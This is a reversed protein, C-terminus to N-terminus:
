LGVMSFSVTGTIIWYDYRHSAGGRRLLAWVLLALAVLSHVGFVISAGTVEVSSASVIEDGFLVWPGALTLAAVAVLLRGSERDASGLDGFVLPWAPRIGGESMTM